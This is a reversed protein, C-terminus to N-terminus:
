MVTTFVICPHHKTIKVKVIIDYRGQKSVKQCAMGVDKLM